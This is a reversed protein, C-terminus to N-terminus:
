ITEDELFPRSQGLYGVASQESRRLYCSCGASVASGVCSGFCRSIRAWARCLEYPPLCASQWRLRDVYTGTAPSSPRKDLTRCGPPRSIRSAVREDSPADPRFVNRHNTPAQFTTAGCNSPCTEMETAPLLGFRSTRRSACRQHSSRVRVFLQTEASTGSRSPAHLAPPRRRFYPRTTLPELSEPSRGRKRLLLCDKIGIQFFPTYIVGEESSTKGRLQSLQAAGTKKSKSFAGHRVSAVIRTAPGSQHRRGPRTWSHATTNLNERSSNIRTACSLICNNEVCIM